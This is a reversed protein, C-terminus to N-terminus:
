TRPNAKERSKSSSRMRTTSEDHRALAEPCIRGVREFQVISCDDDVSVEHREPATLCVVVSPDVHAVGHPDEAEQEESIRLRRTEVRRVDVVVAHDEQGIGDPEEGV